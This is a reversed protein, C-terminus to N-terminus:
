IRCFLSVIYFINRVWTSKVWPSTLQHQKQLPLHQLSVVLANTKSVAQQACKMGQCRKFKGVSRRPPPLHVHKAATVAGHAAHAVPQAASSSVLQRKAHGLQASVTSPHHDSPNQQAGTDIATIAAQVTVAKVQTVPEAANGKYSVSTSAHSADGSGNMAPAMVAINLSLQAAGHSQPQHQSISALAAKIGGGSSARTHTAPV